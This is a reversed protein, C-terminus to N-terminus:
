SEGLSFTECFNRRIETSFIRSKKKNKASFFDSEPVSVTALRMEEQHVIINVYRQDLYKLIWSYAFTWHTTNGGAYFDVM